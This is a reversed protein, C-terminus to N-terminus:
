KRPSRLKHGSLVGQLSHSLTHVQMRHFTPHLTAQRSHFPRFFTKTSKYNPWNCILKKGKFDMKCFLSPPSPNQHPFRRSQDLIPSPYPIVTHVLHYDLETKPSMVATSNFPFRRNPLSYIEAPSIRSSRLWLILGDMVM